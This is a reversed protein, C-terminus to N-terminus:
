EAPLNKFDDKSYGFKPLVFLEKNNDRVGIEKSYSKMWDFLFQILKAFISRPNNDTDSYASMTGMLMICSRFDNGQNRFLIHIDGVLERGQAKHHVVMAHWVDTSASFRNELDIGDESFLRLTIEHIYISVDEFRDSIDKLHVLDNM